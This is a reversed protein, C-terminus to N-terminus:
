NEDSLRDKLEDIEKILEDSTEGDLVMQSDSINKTTPDIVVGLMSLIILVTNIIDMLNEPLFQGLGLQQLLLIVVSAFAVCFAKNQFRKKLNLKM